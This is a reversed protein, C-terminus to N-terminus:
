FSKNNEMNNNTNNDKSKCLLNIRKTEFNMM